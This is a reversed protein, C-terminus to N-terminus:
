THHQSGGGPPPPPHYPQQTAADHAENSTHKSLVTHPISPVAAPLVPVPDDPSPLVHDCLPATPCATTPHPPLPYAPPGRPPILPPTFMMLNRRHEELLRRYTTERRKDRIQKATKGPLHTEMQKAAQPHEAFQAELEIMLDIESKTWTKGYGKAKSHTTSPQAAAARKENRRASHAKRKHQSLGSVTKFKKSCLDCINGDDLVTIPGPCKPTHCLAAHKSEYRKGCKTCKFLIVMTRHHIQAHLLMDKLTEVAYRGTGQKHCINCEKPEYPLPIVINTMQSDASAQGVDLTAQENVKDQDKNDANPGKDLIPRLRRRHTPGDVGFDSAYTRQQSGM